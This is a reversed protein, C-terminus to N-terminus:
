GIVSTASSHFITAKQCQFTTERTLIFDGDFPLQVPPTKRGRKTRNQDNGTSCCCHQPQQRTLLLLSRIKEKEEEGNRLGEGLNLEEPLAALPVFYPLLTSRRM